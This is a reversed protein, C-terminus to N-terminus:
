NIEKKKLDGLYGSIEAGALFHSENGVQYLRQSDQLCPVLGSKGLSKMPEM